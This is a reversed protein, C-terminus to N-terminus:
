LSQWAHVHSTHEVCVNRWLLRLYDLLWIGSAFFHCCRCHLVKRLTLIGLIAGPNLFFNSGLRQLVLSYYLFYFTTNLAKFSLACYSETLWTARLGYSLGLLLSFATLLRNLLICFFVYSIVFCVVTAIFLLFFYAVVLTTTSTTNSSDIHVSITVCRLFGYIMPKLARYQPLTSAKNIKANDLRLSAVAAEKRAQLSRTSGDGDMGTTDGGNVSNIANKVEEPFLHWLFAKYSQSVCCRM